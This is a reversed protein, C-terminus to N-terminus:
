LAVRVVVAGTADGKGGIARLVAGADAAPDVRAHGTRRAGRLVVEVPAGEGRFNRWWRRERWSLLLLDSGQEVYQVPTEHGAGSRRGTWRLLLVRRSLLRHAPSRLLAAVVRNVARTPPAPM